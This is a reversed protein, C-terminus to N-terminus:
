HKSAKWIGICVLNLYRLDSSPEDLMFLKTHHSRPWQLEAHVRELLPHWLSPYPGAPVQLLTLAAVVAPLEPAGPRRMEHLVLHRLTGAFASTSAPSYRLRKIRLVELPAIATGDRICGHLLSQPGGQMWLRM